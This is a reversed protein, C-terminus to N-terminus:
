ELYILFVHTNNNCICNLKKICIKFFRLFFFNLTTFFMTLQWQLIMWFKHPFKENYIPTLIKKLFRAFHLLTYLLSRTSLKNSMRLKSRSLKMLRYQWKCTAHPMLSFQWMFLTLKCKKHHCQSGFGGYSFDMVVFVM